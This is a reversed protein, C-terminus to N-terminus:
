RLTKKLLYEVDAPVAAIGGFIACSKISSSRSAVFSLAASSSGADKSSLLLPARKSGLAASSALADAFNRGTAIGTSAPSLKVGPAFAAGSSLGCTWEAIRLSTEYRNAGALRLCSIGGLQAKVAAFDVAADGGLVVAKTFGMNRIVAVQESSLVGNKCGFVPAKAAYSWPGISLADPYNWGNAIVCTDGWSGKGAGCVSVGTAIRGDGALREVWAVGAVAAIQAEAELSVAAPGGVIHVVTEGNSLRAIQDRAQAGLAAGPTTVLPCGYRGALAAASLADAYSAGSAVVIHSCSAGAPFAQAVMAAMTDYRSAGAVRAVKTSGGFGEIYPNIRYAILEGAELGPHLLGDAFYGAGLGELCLSADELYRCGTQAAADRYVGAIRRMDAQRAASSINWGICAIGVTAKPFAKRARNLLTKTKGLLTASDTTWDNYGGCIVVWRVDQPASFAAARDLLGGFTLADADYASEMVGANGRVAQTFAYGLGLLGASQQPWGSTGAYSDGIYVINGFAANLPKWVAYLDLAGSGAAGRITSSYLVVANGAGGSSSSSSKAWGAFAYGPRTWGVNGMRTSGGVIFTQQATTADGPSFNRHYTVKVADGTAQTELASAHAPSLAALMIVLAAVLALLAALGAARTRKSSPQAANSLANVM